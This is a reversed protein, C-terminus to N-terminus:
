VEESRIPLARRHGARQSLLRAFCFLYIGPTGVPCTRHHAASRAGATAPVAWAATTLNRRRVEEVAASPRLMQHTICARAASDDDSLDADVALEEVNIGDELPKGRLHIPMRTVETTASPDDSSRMAAPRRPISSIPAIPQGLTDKPVKWATRTMLVLVRKSPSARLRHCGASRTAAAAENDFLSLASSPASQSYKGCGEDQNAWTSPISCSREGFYFQSWKRPSVSEAAVDQWMRGPCFFARRPSDKAQEYFASLQPWEVAELHAKLAVPGVDDSSTRIKWLKGSPPLSDGCPWFSIGWAWKWSPCRSTRSQTLCLRYGPPVGGRLCIMAGEQCVAELLQEVFRHLQQWSCIWTAALPMHPQLDGANDGMGTPPFPFDGTRGPGFAADVANPINTTTSRDREPAQRDMLALLQAM